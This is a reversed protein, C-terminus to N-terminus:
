NKKCFIRIANRLFQATGEGHRDINATFREDAVYMEGLGALIENTCTYYNETIFTQWRAVLAQVAADSPTLGSKKSNGFEALLDNMEGDLRSWTANTYEKTKKQSERYAETNGWKKKAEAEYESRAATYASNDFAKMDMNENGKETEELMHILRDLRDRKLLLLQKQQALAQRKDYNPSSLIEQISKLSFDLERYFLIEQMRRLAAEDYYRYSSQKDVLSPKLLGIEDYYHLTRVSVGTLTAFEKIQLKM